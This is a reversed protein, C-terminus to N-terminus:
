WIEARENKPRYMKDGEKVGFADYFEQMNSLPGNARFNGPSHSNTQVMNKLAKDRMNTRWGQAWSMFFRQEATFGNIKEPAPKGELSKKFAYYSITLGGLDAINEGLTLEGNVHMSDIAIYSNFQNVIIDTKSKFNQKDKETWWNKLNGDADFQSGEDDFGHTLEHGIIAGMCGYNVADDADPTFFVPQMIGAPFVIENMTPNYYANITPPSMGWENRDIPKGLKSIMDNFAFQNSRLYNQLYSDRNIELSSYDKWKDPYGFKKMVKDLKAYAQQKTEESMWDRTKIRDKYVTILNEVMEAVRKKSSETFYKEVFLQGLAEGLARDTAELARKWRPKLAPVGNLFNGYFGFNANVFDDSLKSASGNILHFRFYTKLDAMSASKLVKNLEQYFLPQGVIVNQINKIGVNELYLSWNFAPTLENLEKLTKKNYQKEPDRLEVNTMSAKALTTELQMVIKANKAAVEPKEALMTFMKTIYNEYETQIEVSRQDKNTYYDRDPLGIGGQYFQTIYETSVKPDQAIYGGFLPEIGIAHLHALVKVADDSSKISEIMDLEAKLPNIGEANLKTSDMAAAYYDGIKQSNSGKAANKDAGSEELIGKLKAKNIKDLESFSGWRSESEPIPNNKIWNGNVFQYFDDVPKVTSDINSVDIANNSLEQKPQNCGFILASIALSFIPKFTNKM